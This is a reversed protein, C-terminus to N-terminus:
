AACRGVFVRGEGGGEGGVLLVPGLVQHDDVEQAVVEAGDTLDAADLHRPHHLDLGVLGDVLEDGLDAAAEAGVSGGDVGDAGAERGSRHCAGGLQAGRLDEALDLAGGAADVGARDTPEPQAARGVERHRDPGDDESVAPGLDAGAARDDELGVRLALVALVLGTLVALILFLVTFVIINRMSAQWRQEQFMEWYTAGFPHRLTLDQRTPRKWNSVSIWGSFAIFGYVFIFTLILSPAMFAAAGRFRSRKRSKIAPPPAKLTDGPPAPPASTVSM